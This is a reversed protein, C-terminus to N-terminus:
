ETRSPVATKADIDNIYNFLADRNERSKFFYTFGDCMVGFVFLNIPNGGVNMEKDTPQICYSYWVKGDCDKREFNNYDRCELKKDRILGRFREMECGIQPRSCWMLQRASNHWAICVEGKKQDEKARRWLSCVGERHYISM